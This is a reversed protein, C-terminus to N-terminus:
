HRASVGRRSVVALGRQRVAEYVLVAASVSVNLSDVVGLMPILIHSTAAARWEDSLGTSETGMVIATGGTMDVDYYPHSDQLQATLISIGRERLWAICAASTTCVTPVTFVGGLSARISNPNFPDALPDCVILADVGAADATRLMAGLNGPKEVGEAVLVLPREPLRLHALSLPPTEVVALLGETGGRLAAKAYVEPTVELWLAAPVAQRLSSVASAGALSPCCYIEKITFGGRACREIERVGEVVAVGQERRLSSQERLAVLRKVRGNQLSTIKENEAM